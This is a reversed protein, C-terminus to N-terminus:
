TWPRHLYSFITLSAALVRVEHNRLLINGEITALSAWMSPMRTDGFTTRISAHRNTENKSRRGKVVPSYFM